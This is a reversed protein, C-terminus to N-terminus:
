GPQTFGGLALIGIQILVSIAALVLNVIAVVKAITLTTQNEHGVNYQRIMNQASNVTMLSYIQILPCCVFGVIAAILATTAKSKIEGAVAANGGAPVAGPAYPNPGTSM